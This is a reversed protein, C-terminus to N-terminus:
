IMVRACEHALFRKTGGRNWIKMAPPKYFTRLFATSICTVGFDTKVLDMRVYDDCAVRTCDKTNANMPGSMFLDAMAEYDAETAAGFEAGHKQFHINRQRANAFPM